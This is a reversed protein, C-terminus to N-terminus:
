KEELINKSMVRISDQIKLGENTAIYNLNRSSTGKEERRIRNLKNRADRFSNTAIYDFAIEKFNVTKYWEKPYLGTYYDKASNYIIKGDKQINHTVFTFQGIEGEVRYSSINEEIVGGLQKQKEATKKKISRWM